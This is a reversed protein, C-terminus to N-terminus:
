SSKISIPFLLHFKHSLFFHIKLIFVLVKHFVPFFFGLRFLKNSDLGGVVVSVPAAWGIIRAAM